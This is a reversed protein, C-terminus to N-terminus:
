LYFEKTFDAYEKTYSGDKERLVLEHKQQKKRKFEFQMLVRNTPKDKKPKIELIKNCYLSNILAKQMFVLSENSPLIIFFKGNKKLLCKVGEILEDFTLSIDHKSLNRSDDPSKLSGSFYPPNTAIIDYKKNQERYFQQFSINHVNIRNHWKCNEANEKAQESSKNDIEVADIVANTKQALMIAIIGCGTGIDLITKADENIWAGLLVADTGVKMTCRDDCISFQKFRFTNSM